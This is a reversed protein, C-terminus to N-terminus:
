RTKFNDWLHGKLVLKVIIYNLTSNILLIHKFQYDIMDLHGLAVPLHM